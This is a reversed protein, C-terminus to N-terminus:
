DYDTAWYRALQQMTKLPVGQSHDAVTEKEPWQTVAIRRRLDVLEEEPVNIRFPRIANGEAAAAFDAPLLRATDAAAVGVAATGVFRRRDHDITNSTNITDVSSDGRREVIPRFEEISSENAAPNGHRRDLFHQRASRFNISLKQLPSNLVFSCQASERLTM